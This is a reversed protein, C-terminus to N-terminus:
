PKKRPNQSTHFVAAITVIDDFIEYIIVYPFTPLALERFNDKKKSFSHPHTVTYELTSIVDEYFRNGLNEQQEEYWEMADFIDTLAAPSFIVKFAM